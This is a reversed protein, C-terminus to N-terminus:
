VSSLFLGTGVLTQVVATNTLVVGGGLINWKYELLHPTIDVSSWTRFCHVNWLLSYLASVLLVQLSSGKLSLPTAGFPCTAVLSIFLDWNQAPQSSSFILSVRLHQEIQLFVSCQEFSHRSAWQGECLICQLGYAHEATLFCAVFSYWFALHWSFLAWSFVGVTLSSTPFLHM